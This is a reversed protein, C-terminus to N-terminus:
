LYIYEQSRQSKAVRFTMMKMMMKTTMMTMMMMKIMMMFTEKSYRAPPSNWATQDMTRGLDLEFILALKDDDDDLNADDDEEEDVDDDDDDEDDDDDDQEEQGASSLLTISLDIGPESDRPLTALWSVETM